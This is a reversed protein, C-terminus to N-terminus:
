VVFHEGTEIGEVRFSSIVRIQQCEDFSLAGYM